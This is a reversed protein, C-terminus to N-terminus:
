GRILVPRSPLSARATSSGGSPISMAWGAARTDFIKRVESLTRNRNDTVTDVMFVTGAPGFGEYVISEL